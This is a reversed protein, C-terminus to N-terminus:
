ARWRNCGTDDHVDKRVGCCFCPDRDVRFVVEGRYLSRAFGAVKHFAGKSPKSARRVIENVQKPTIEMRRSVENVSLYRENILLLVADVTTSSFQRGTM